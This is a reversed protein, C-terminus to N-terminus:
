EIWLVSNGTNFENQEWLKNGPDLMWQGDVRFKYRYKGPKFHFSITWEDGNHALTYGEEDWDNFSGTVVVKKAKKFGKLKFTYNPNVAIFSSVKGGKTRYYPSSPDTIIQGDVIFKYDYNGSKLILPLTWYGDATKKMASADTKWNNFDGTVFVKKADNYGKLKFYVAEGLNLVSNVEGSEDKAKTPNAPDTMWQDNVLFKYTHTGEALYLHKEWTNGNKNMAIENTDWKNFSGAVIVKRAMPFGALKFTYNYKFYVSNTNGIGDDIQLLNNPDTTWHGDIIFKYEYAGATLKVDIVWGGDTKKMLGKLTSWNNFNGSLFVRRANTHGPFIFRTLGSSLEYVTANAFKNVGYTVNVPYGGGGDFKDMRTTIEYPHSQPNDNLDTLSRDFQIVSNQRNGMNWGDKILASFDGKLVKASNPNNLGAAKLISDMETKSSHLDLLLILHDKAVILNNRQQADVGMGSLLLLMIILTHGYRKM